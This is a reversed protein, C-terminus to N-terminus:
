PLAENAQKLEESLPRNDVYATNLRPPMVPPTVTWSRRSTASPPSMFNYAFM